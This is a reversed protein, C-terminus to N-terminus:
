TRVHCPAQWDDVHHRLVCRSTDMLPGFIQRALEELECESLDSLVPAVIAPVDIERSLGVEQLRGIIAAAVAWGRLGAEKGPEVSVLPDFVKMRLFIGYWLARSRTIVNHSQILQKLAILLLPVFV